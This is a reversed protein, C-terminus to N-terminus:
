GDNFMKFSTGGFHRKAEILSFAMVYRFIASIASLGTFREGGVGERRHREGEISRSRMSGLVREIRNGRSPESGIDM